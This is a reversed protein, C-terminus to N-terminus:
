NDASKGNNSIEGIYTNIKKAREGVAKPIEYWRSAWFVTQGKWEAWWRGDKTQAIRVPEAGNFVPHNRGKKLFIKYLQDFTLDFGRRTAYQPLEHKSKVM